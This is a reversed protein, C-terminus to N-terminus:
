MKKIDFQTAFNYNKNCVLEGYSFSSHFVGVTPNISWDRKEFKTAKLFTKLSSVQKEFDFSEIDDYYYWIKIEKKDVDTRLFLEQIQQLKILSKMALEEWLEKNM